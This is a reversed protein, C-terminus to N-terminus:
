AQVMEVQGEDGLVVNEFVNEHHLQCKVPVDSHIGSIKMDKVKANSFRIVYPTEGEEPQAAYHINSITINEVTVGRDPQRPKLRLKRQEEYREPVFLFVVSKLADGSLKYTNDRLAFGGCTVAHRGDDHVFINSATLNKVAMEMHLATIARSYVNRISINHIDGPKGREEPTKYYSDQGILVLMQVQSDLGPRGTDVINEIVINYVQNGQQCLLRVVSCMNSFARVNRIIVDHIHTDRGPIRNADETSGKPSLATLAIVDDGTQGTINEILINSCGVRLNIGDQNRWTAYTDRYIIEFHINSLRGNRCFMMMFSWWRQDRVTVNEIVFHEVNHLCILLNQHVSPLGNKNSTYENLANEKGGDLIAQGRGIIAINHQEGEITHGFETYAEKNRFMQSIADDAMRLHCNDLVVTMDSPLLIVEDINWICKESVANFRPIVVQNLGSEHAANIAAQIRQSDSGTLFDNPSSFYRIM